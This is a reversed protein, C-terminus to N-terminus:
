AFSYVLHCCGVIEDSDTGAGGSFYDDHTGLGGVPTNRDDVGAGKPAGTGQAAAVGLLHHDLPGLRQVM